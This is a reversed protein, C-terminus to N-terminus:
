RGGGLIGLQQAAKTAVIGLFGTFLIYGVGNLLRRARQHLYIFIFTTTLYELLYLSFYLDIQQRRFVALVVTTGTFLLALTLLYRDYLRM